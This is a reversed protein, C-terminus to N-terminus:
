SRSGVVPSSARAVASIPVGVTLSFDRDPDNIFLFQAGFRLVQAGEGRVDQEPPASPRLASTPEVPVPQEGCGLTFASAVVTIPLLLSSRSM